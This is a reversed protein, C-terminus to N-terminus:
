SGFRRYFWRKVAEVSALYLVVLFGLAALVPPPLATFGVRSALPLFPLTVATAVVGLSTLGLPVSPRSRLPSGRSRLVFIVLVQTALSEVFWGSHFLVPGARFVQLLVFFTLFDFASSVPGVVLMFNRIFRMDWRRPGRLFERGVADTPIPVESVDYLLNNLLIQVPLMPLFPLVVSAAAMSFMNGFNSSTAMMIYKMINGFTRRGELVGRHLVALDHELLILDAAERAVDVATDVSVGVDASHLSPADNIGDGLFGVVHGSEKLALLVRTKQAPTVRCFLTTGPARLRLAPDPLAEIERGTLVGAIPLGLEACVHRTVIENDGTLVKVAVGSQALARVARAADAKPPDEFVTLGTFVLDREDGVAARAETMPRWGVGLVRYGERSLREFREVIVARAGDDLPALDRPGDREYRTSLRLVEELAGKVILIRQEDPGHLLVSLRRREFGFPVEDLKRWAGAAIGTQRLIAQDLPSRIGSQFSSNLYALELARRSDRGAADLHRVLRIDAETLTGTKDTCLVDMSGLDHIASLRKM